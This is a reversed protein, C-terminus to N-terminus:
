EEMPPATKGPMPNTDRATVIFIIEDGEKKIIEELEKLRNIAEIRENSKLKLNIAKGLSRAYESKEYAYKTKM